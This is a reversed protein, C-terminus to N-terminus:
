DMQNAAYVREWDSIISEARKAARKWVEERDSYLGKGTAESTLTYADEWRRNNKLWRKAGLTKLDDFWQRVFDGAGRREFPKIDVPRNEELWLFFADRLYTNSETWNIEFLALEITGYILRGRAFQWGVDPPVIKPKALSSSSAPPWLARLRRQREGMPISLYPERPFEPCYWFLAMLRASRHIRKRLAKVMDEFVPPIRKRLSKADEIIVATERAFEYAYCEFV